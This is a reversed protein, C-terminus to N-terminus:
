FYYDQRTLNNAVKIADLIEFFPDTLEPLVRISQDSITMKSLLACLNAANAHNSEQNCGLIFISIILSLM